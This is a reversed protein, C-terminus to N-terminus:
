RVTNTVFKLQFSFVFHIRSTSIFSHWWLFQKNLFHYSSLRRYSSLFQKCRVKENYKRELSEAHKVLKEVERLADERSQIVSRLDNDKRSNASQGQIFSAFIM